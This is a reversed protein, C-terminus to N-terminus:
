AVPVLDREFQEALDAIRRELEPREPGAFPWEGADPHLYRRALIGRVGEAAAAPLWRDLRGAPVRCAQPRTGRSAPRTLCRNLASAWGRASADLSYRDRVADVAGVSLDSLLTPERVLRALFDAAITLDGVPFILGTEEHRILGESICGLYRSVVPVVGHGMAEIPTLPSGECPSFLLICDLHPYVQEYVHALSVRGLFSVKGNDAQRALSCHLVAEENGGGVVTLHYPVEKNELAHCLAVLDLSRKDNDLRGVYGLRLPNGPTAVQRPQRPPEVGNPVYSVREAPIGAGDTLLYAVLKSVAVAGDCFDQYTATDALMRPSAGHAAALLRVPNGQEKIRAAAEYADALCLPVIVDPRRRRVARLIARVRGEATGSRGDLLITDLAPHAARYNFPNHFRSGYALGVIPRWGLAALRACLQDLWTPIGGIVTYTQTCFLVTSM